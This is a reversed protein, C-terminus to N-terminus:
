SLPLVELEHKEWKEAYHYLDIGEVTWGHERLIHAYFSLQHQYQLKKKADLENNTKYDGIRCVKKKEDLITLRDIRGARGNKVDSILVEVYADAGFKEVFEKVIARLHPNKPLAYNEDMEKKVQVDAGLGGYLHFNELATHIASGYETSVKGNAEWLEGLEKEDVGWAKATKPIMMEKDFKPSLSEAYASGSLLPKGDLDFYKHTERDFRIQEGTFTTLIEGGADKVPLPKEGYKDWLHKITDLAVTEEESSEITFKPKINGYQVVPITAEIEYHM